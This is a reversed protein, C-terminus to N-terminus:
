SGDYGCAPVEFIEGQTPDLEPVEVRRILQQRELEEHMLAPTVYDTFGYNGPQRYRRIEAWNVYIHSIRRNVLQAERQGVSRGRMLEELICTDFCTNYLFPVRLNFVAADGVLLAQRDSKVHDNLYRHAVSVTTLRPDDRLQELSVLYSNNGLLPSAAVTFNAALGLIVVSWMTRRWLRSDSWTAGIGAMLALLPWVPVLFRELRHTCLWWAAVVSLAALTWFAAQRLTRRRLVVLAALPIVLPSHWLSGGLVLRAAEAAQQPSYRRGEADRPVRHAQRFQVDKEPTRTRGDLVRALLPYVPNGSQVWNKALWLGCALTVALVCVSVASFRVFLRGRLAGRQSAVGVLVLLPVVVLIASTYKCAVASGAMWGAWWLYGRAFVPETQRADLWLKATYAAALLYYALVGENLGSVSVLVIWPTSIYILAAVIGATPSAFRYGAAILLVAALPAFGALVLKGALAGWWWGLDGPALAMTLAVLAEAGLPMNGYINHPLFAIRGNEVWERPVQLHYELVDFDVPPLLAGGVIVLLFPLALWCALWGRSRRASNPSEYGSDPGPEALRDARRWLRPLSAVAILTAATVFVWPQHLGGVLGVALTLLSWVSLGIGMALAFRELGNLHRSAQWPRLVLRGTLLAVGWVAGALALLPVRDLVNIEGVPVDAWQGALVDPILLYGLTQYRVLEANIPVRYFFVAYLGSLAVFVVTWALTNMREAPTREGRIEPDSGALPPNAAQETARAPKKSSKSM